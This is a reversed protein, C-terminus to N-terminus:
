RSRACGQPVHMCKRRVANHGCQHSPGRSHCQLSDGSQRLHVFTSAVLYMTDPRNVECWREFASPHRLEVQSHCVTLLEDGSSALRRMIASGVLGRREAVFVRESRTASM